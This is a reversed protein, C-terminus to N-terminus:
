RREGPVQRSGVRPGVHKRADEAPGPAIPVRQDGVHRESQIIKISGDLLEHRRRELGLRCRASGLALTSAPSFGKSSPWAIRKPASKPATV